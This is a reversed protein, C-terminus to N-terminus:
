TKVEEKLLLSVGLSIPFPLKKVGLSNGAITQSAIKFSNNNEILTINIDKKKTLEDDQHLFNMTALIKIGDDEEEVDELTLEYARPINLEEVYEKIEEIAIKDPNVLYNQVEFYDFNIVDTLYENIFRKYNEEREKSDFHSKISFIVAVVFIIIYGKKIKRKRIRM